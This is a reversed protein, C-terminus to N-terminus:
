FVPLLDQQHVASVFKLHRTAKISDGIKKKETKKEEEKGGEGERGSKSVRKETERERV